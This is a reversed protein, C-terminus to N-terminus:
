GVYPLIVACLYSFIHFTCFKFCNIETMLGIM